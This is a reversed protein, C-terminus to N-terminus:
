EPVSPTQLHYTLVHIQEAAEKESAWISLTYRGRKPPRVEIARTEGRRSILFNVGTVRKQNQSLTASLSLQPPVKLRITCEKEVRMEYATSDMLELGMDFFEPERLCQHDFEARTMTPRSRLQWFPDEPFHSALMEEPDVDFYPPPYSRQENLYDEDWTSDVLHWQNRWYVANWAHRDDETVVIKDWSKVYGSVYVARVGAAEALAVFLASYGACVGQRRALVSDADQEPREDDHEAAYDDYDIHSTIWAHIALAKQEDSRCYRTLYAALTPVDKSISKPANRAYDEIRHLRALPDFKVPPM